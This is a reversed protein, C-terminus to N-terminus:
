KALEIKAKSLPVISISKLNEIRKLRQDADIDPPAETNKESDPYFVHDTEGCHILNEIEYLLEPLCPNSHMQKSTLDFRGNNTFTTPLFNQFPPTSSRYTFQYRAANPASSSINVSHLIKLLYLRIGEDNYAFANNTNSSDDLILHPSFSRYHEWLERPHLALLISCAAQLNCPQDNDTDPYDVEDSMYQDIQYSFREKFRFALYDKSIDELDSELVLNLSNISISLKNTNAKNKHREIIHRDIIGLYHHFAKDLHDDTIIKKRTQFALSIQHKIKKNIEDLDCYKKNDEYEYSAVRNLADNKGILIEELLTHLQDATKTPFAYRLIASTKSIKKSDSAAKGIITTKKDASAKYENCILTIDNKLSDILSTFHPRNNIPKWTHVFGSVAPQKYLELTIEILANSYKEFTSKNYAKVQHISISKDNKRIEFDETSELMLSFASLDADAAEKNILALAYYLAIKGQYNFGSWSPSADFAM